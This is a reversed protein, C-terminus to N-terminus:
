RLSVEMSIETGAGESSAILSGTKHLLMPFSIALASKLKLDGLCILGLRSARDM